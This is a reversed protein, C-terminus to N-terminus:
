ITVGALELAKFTEDTRTQDYLGKKMKNIYKLTGEWELINNEMTEEIGNCKFSVWRRFCAGCAGCPVPGEFYCSRTKLLNEKDFGHVLYWKIMETKTMKAFPTTVQIKRKNLFSIFGGITEFFEPSRDPISMEAKQVVLVLNDAYNSAIMLMLANRMPINADPKEWKGLNLSDDIITDPITNKIAELEFSQYRHNIKCYLTKPRNLFEWAIYSDLGGSYLLLSTM